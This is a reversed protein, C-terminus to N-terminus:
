RFLLACCRPGSLRFERACDTWTAGKISHRWSTDGFSMCGVFLTYVDTITM